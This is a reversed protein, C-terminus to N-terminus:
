PCWSFLNSWITGGTEIWKIQQKEQSRDWTQFCWVSWFKTNWVDFQQFNHTLLQNPSRFTFIQNKCSALKILAAWAISATIIYVWLQHPRYTNTYIDRIDWKPLRYPKCTSGGLRSVRLFLMCFSVMELCCSCYEFGRPECAYPPKAYLKVLLFM